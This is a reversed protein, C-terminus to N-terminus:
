RPMIGTGILFAPALAEQPKQPEYRVSAQNAPAHSPLRTLGILTKLPFQLIFIASPIAFHFNCLSKFNESKLGPPQAGRAM